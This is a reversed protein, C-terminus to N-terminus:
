PKGAGEGEASVGMLGSVSMVAHFVEKMNGIDLNSELEDKTYDPYNRQIAELMVDIVVDVQTPTPINSLNGLTALKEQYKRLLKFSLPPVTLKKGGLKVEVGDFTVTSDTSM